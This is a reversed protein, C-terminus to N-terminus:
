RPIALYNLAKFPYNHADDFRDWDLRGRGTLFDEALFISYGLEETLFAFFERRTQGFREVGGPASEFLLSPHDCRILEVAGRLVLFEAGEIDLKIFAIPHGEIIYQDLRECDVVIENVEDQPDGTGRLGSFGSRTLSEFFTIKGSTEGLAVQKVEVEPFKGRLWEAKQPIPEFAMHKGEPALRTLLSLMSGLHCGVDICNSREGVLREVAREVRDSELLLDRLEPRNRYRIRASIRRARIAAREFPTRIIMSKIYDVNIM